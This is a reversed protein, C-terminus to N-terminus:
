EKQLIQAYTPACVLSGDQKSFFYYCNTQAPAAAATLAALGPSAIPTPPWGQHTYTNWLSGPDVKGGTDELPGWYGTTSAPPTDSDRAYQVTPDAALLPGGVDASPQYIRKWYIGAILPMQKTNAAERQVISALVVMTYLPIQHQGAVAALNEQQVVRMFEDLMMDIVQVATYNLPILYTDPFLLGEMSPAKQLIPYRARDPFREPHHTYQSFDERKFNVLDLSSAQAAVQELRWGDIVALRKEDPQQQLLKAVISDISMGPTLIYAGAHLQTDLGKIRAWIRFTLPNRILSHAYLDDAIQATTEGEKVVLTIPGAHTAAPPEFATAITSWAGYIVGFIVLATLFVAIMAGRGRKRMM